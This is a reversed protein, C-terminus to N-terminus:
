WIQPAERPTATASPKEKEEKANTNRGAVSKSIDKWDVNAVLSAPCNPDRGLHGTRGCRYCTLQSNKGPGRKKDKIRNVNASDEKEKVGPGETAMAALQTDM